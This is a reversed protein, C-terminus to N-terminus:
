VRRKLRALEDELQQKEAQAQRAAEAERAVATRALERAARAAKWRARLAEIRPRAVLFVVTGVGALLVLAIGYIWLAAFVKMVVIVLVLVATVAAVIKALRLRNGTAEQAKRAAKAEPTLTLDDVLDRLVAKGAQEVLAQQKRQIEESLAM